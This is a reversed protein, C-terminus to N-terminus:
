HAVKSLQQGTRRRRWAALGGGLLTLGGMIMSAPEPVAAAGSFTYNFVPTAAFVQADVNNATFVADYVAFDAASGFAAVSLAGVGGVTPNITFSGVLLSGGTGTLGLISSQELTVTAGSGSANVVDFLANGAPASLSGVGSLNVKFSAGAAGYNALDGAAGATDVLLLDVNIPAAVPGIPGSPSFQLVLAADATSCCFVMAVLNAILIKM